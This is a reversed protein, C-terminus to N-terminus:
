FEGEYIIVFERDKSVQPDVLVEIVGYYADEPFFIVTWGGTSAYTMEWNKRVKKIVTDICGQISSEIYGLSHKKMYPNHLSIWMAADHVSSESISIERM